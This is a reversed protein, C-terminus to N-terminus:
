RRVCPVSAARLGSARLRVHETGSLQARLRGPIARERWLQQGGAAGFPEQRQWGLQAYNNQWIGMDWGHPVFHDLSADYMAGLLQAAVQEGKSGTIKLRWEEDSGPLLKDRFSMWEVKLEKNTWPVDIFRQESHLLGREVSFLHVTFGGRDEETVPLEVLQQTNKLTFWRSVVITGAREVEM